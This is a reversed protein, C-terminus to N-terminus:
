SPGTLSCVEGGRSVSIRAREVDLERGGVLEAVRACVELVAMEAQEPHQEARTLSHVRMVDIHSPSKM